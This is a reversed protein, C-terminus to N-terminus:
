FIWDKLSLLLLILITVVSIRTIWFDCTEGVTKPHDLEHDYYEMLTKDVPMM